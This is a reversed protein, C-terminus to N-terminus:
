VRQTYTLTHDPVPSSQGPGDIGDPVKCDVIPFSFAETAGGVIM